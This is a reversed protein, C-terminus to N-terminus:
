QQLTPDTPGAEDDLDPEEPADDGPARDGNDIDEPNPLTMLFRFFIVSAVLAAAGGAILPVTLDIRGLLGGIVSGIPMSGWLLTRWTGHVRGLLRGPIFSQRISMVLINWITIVGSSLAFAIAAAWVTPVLGAFLFVVGDIVSMIAMTLGAGWAAKLRSTLMAGVIGGVAGSLMFVGFLAEPVELKELVFLVWSATAASTVIGVFTSFLWLTVLMRSSIIFRFGDLFQRHWPVVPETSAEAYQRGSAAKPLALALGGALAFVLGNIGVPILVSVAFLLSTLPGSLFNQVVLEGAEIRSNARPLDAKGVISPVVARIAGDYVTEFAGYVFVILYIWWITEAGNLVLVFLLIALGVRVAQALALARRRDIRDILIGAPIAFFLWPLLSLAAVIAILLADQTLRAALLPLAIRVIGDGLSSALNATFINGFAAGLPQKPTGEPKMGGSKVM